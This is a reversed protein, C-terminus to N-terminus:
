NLTQPGSVYGLIPHPDRLMFMVLVVLSCSTGTLTATARVYRYPGTSASAATPLQFSIMQTTQAATVTTFTAGTIDVFTVNDVSAQMKVALSTFTSVDGVDIFANILASGAPACDVGTGDATTAFVQPTFTPTVSLIETLDNFTTAL